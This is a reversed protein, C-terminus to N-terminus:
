GKSALAQPERSCSPTPRSLLCMAPSQLASAPFTPAPPMNRTLAAPWNSHHVVPTCGLGSTPTPTTTAPRMHVPMGALVASNLCLQGLGGSESDRPVPGFQSAANALSTFDLNAVRIAVQMRMWQVHACTKSQWPKSTMRTANAHWSAADGLWHHHASDPMSRANGLKWSVCMCCAPLVLRDHCCRCSVHEFVIHGAHCSVAQMRAGVQGPKGQM